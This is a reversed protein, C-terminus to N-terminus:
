PLAAHRWGAVAPALILPFIAKKLHSEPLSLQMYDIGVMVALYDLNSVCIM